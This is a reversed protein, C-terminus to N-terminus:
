EAIRINVAGTISKIDNFLDPLLTIYLARLHANGAFILGVCSAAKDFVLAGSDEPDSFLTGSAGTVVHERPVKVSIGGQGNPTPIHASWSSSNLAKALFELFHSYPITDAYPSIEGYTVVMNTLHRAKPVRLLAWDMQRKENNGSATTRYGSAAHVHGAYSQSAACGDKVWGTCVGFGIRGLSGNNVLKDKVWISIM